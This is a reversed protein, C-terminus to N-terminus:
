GRAILSVDGAHITRMAGSALRLILSGNEDLGAFAGEIAGEEGANVCLSTGLPLARAQWRELLPTLGGKRWRVLEDSFRTALEHLVESPGRTESSKGSHIKTTKRDPLDPAHVVNMGIGVVVAQHHRELLIGAIKADGVLADNPWKLALDAGQPLEHRLTEYVAVGTVLSLTHAPPDGADIHVVTSTYLNGKESV